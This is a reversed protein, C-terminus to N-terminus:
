SCTEKCSDSMSRTIDCQRAEEEDLWEIRNHSICYRSGCPLNLSLTSPRLIIKGESDKIFWWGEEKLKAWVPFGCGCACLHVAWGDTESIYLMGPKLVKPIHLVHVPYVDDVRDM